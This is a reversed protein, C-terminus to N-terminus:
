ATARRYHDELDSLRTNLTDIIKSEYLGFPIVDLIQNRIFETEAETLYINGQVEQVGGCVECFPTCDFAGLHNPCEAMM